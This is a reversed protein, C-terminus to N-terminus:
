QQQIDADEAALGDLIQLYNRRVADHLCPDELAALLKEKLATSNGLGHYAAVELQLLASAQIANAAYPRAVAAAGIVGYWDEAQLAASAANVNAVFDPTAKPGQRYTKRCYAVTELSPMPPVARPPPPSIVPAPPENELRLRQTEAPMALLAAAAILIVQRM